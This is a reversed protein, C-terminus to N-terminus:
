PLFCDQALNNSLRAGTTLPPRAGWSLPGHKWSISFGRWLNNSHHAGANISGAKVISGADLVSFLSSM